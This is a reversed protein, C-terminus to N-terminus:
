FGNSRCSFRRSFAAETDWLSYQNKRGYVNNLSFTPVDSYFEYLSARQYSNHFAVPRGKMKNHLEKSWKKAGSSNNLVQSFPLVNAVLLVRLMLILSLSIVFSYRVIKILKMM